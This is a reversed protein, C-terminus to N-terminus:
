LSFDDPITIQMQNGVVVAMLRLSIICIKIVLHDSPIDGVYNDGLPEKSVGM